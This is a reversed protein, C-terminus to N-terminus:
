LEPDALPQSSAIAISWKPRATEQCQSLTITQIVLRSLFKYPGAWQQHFKRSLGKPAAINNLWVRDGQKFPTEKEVSNHCDYAKKQKRQAEGINKRVVRQVDKLTKELEDCYNLIFKERAEAPTSMLVLPTNDERGYVAKFPSIGSSSHVNNRYAFLALPLHVDWDSHDKNVYATLIQKLTRNLREVQRDTQPHYPSTRLKKVDHLNFVQRILDAEFNRGQVTLLKGPVGHRTVVEDVFAKAVTEARQNTMPVAEVWKTFHDLMGLIYQNGRTTTPLPGLIDMAWLEMPQGVEVEISKMPAKKPLVPTRCRSSIECETIWLQVKSAM